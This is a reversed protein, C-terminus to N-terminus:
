LVTTSGGAASVQGDFFPATSLPPLHKIRRGHTASQLVSLQRARDTQGDTHRRPDPIPLSSGRQSTLADAVSVQLLHKVSPVLLAAVDKHLTHLQCLLLFLLFFLPTLVLLLLHPPAPSSSEAKTVRWRCIKPRKWDLVTNETIPKFHITHTEQCLNM